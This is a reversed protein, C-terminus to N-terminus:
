GLVKQTAAAAAAAAGKQQQMFFSGIGESVNGGLSMVGEKTSNAISSAVSSATAAASSSAASVEGLAYYLVKQWFALLSNPLYIYTATVLLTLLTIVLSNLIAKEAPTLMYVAFTVEYQYNKRKCWGLFSDFLAGAM